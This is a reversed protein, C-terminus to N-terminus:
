GSATPLCARRCGKASASRPRDTSSGSAPPTTRARQDRDRRLLRVRKRRSVARGSAPGLVRALEPGARARRAVLRGHHRLAPQKRHALGSRGALHGPAGDEDRHTSHRAGAGGPQRRSSRDRLGVAHGHVLGRRRRAVLRPWQGDGLDRHASDDEGESRRRGRPGPRGVLQPSRHVRHSGAEPFNAHQHHVGQERVASPGGSVRPASDAGSHSRDAIQAGARDWDAAMVDELLDRAAGGGLSAQALMGRYYGTAGWIQPTRAIAMQGTSSIALLTAAGLGLPRSEPSDSRTSYLELPGGDWAASYAVTKSDVGFRASPIFGRRFTLRHFSRPLPAGTSSAPSSPRPRARRDARRGRPRTSAEVGAGRAGNGLDRVSSRPAGRPRPGSGRDLLLAAPTGQRSM